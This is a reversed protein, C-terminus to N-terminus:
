LKMFSYSGDAASDDGTVSVYQLCNAKTVEPFIEELMRSYYFAEEANENAAEKKAANEIDIQKQSRPM